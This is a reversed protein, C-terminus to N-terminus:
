SAQELEGVEGSAAVYGSDVRKGLFQKLLRATNEAGRLNLSIQNPTMQLAGVIAAALPEPALTEPRLAELVGLKRLAAVRMAQEREKESTLPLVLARVGTSLIDMITNYGGMSISLEARRMQAALSPTYRSLTVNHLGRALGELRQYVEPPVLPGAFVRFEHPIRDQLVQAARIVAELVRYGEPFKGGGVSAVIAPGSRTDGAPAGSEKEREEPAVFGTYVVPCTLEGARSFTEEFRQLREDGHM